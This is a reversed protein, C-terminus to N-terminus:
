SSPAARSAAERMGAKLRPHIQLIGGANPAELKGLGTFFRVTEHLHRQFTASLAPYPCVPSVSLAKLIRTGLEPALSCKILCIRVYM